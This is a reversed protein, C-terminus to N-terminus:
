LNNKLIYKFSLHTPCILFSLTITPPPFYLAHEKICENGWDFKGLCSTVDVAVLIRHGPSGVGGVREELPFMLFPSGLGSLDIAGIKGQKLNRESCPVNRKKEVTPLEGM